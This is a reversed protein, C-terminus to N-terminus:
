PGTRRFLADVQALPVGSRMSHGFACVEFGHTALFGALESFLVQGEYFVRFSVESLVWRTKQLTAAAGRLVELEFGQVDLKILDPQPLSETAIIRDLTTIKMERPAENRIHWQERGADNLPLFGSADSFSAPHFTRTEEVAGLAVPFLRVRDLQETNKRFAAFHEEMPEFCVISSDPVLARCLQTWTGVNAGIDHFVRAGDKAALEILELSDIHDPTLAAACTGRLRRVRHRKTLEQSIREALVHPKYFLEPRM